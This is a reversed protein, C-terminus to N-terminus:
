PNVVRHANLDRKSCAVVHIGFNLTPQLSGVELVRLVFDTLHQFFHRLPCSEFRCPLRSACALYTNQRSGVIVAIGSEVEM